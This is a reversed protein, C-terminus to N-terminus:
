QKSTKNKEFSALRQRADESYESDGSVRLAEKFHLAAEDPRHKRDMILGMRFYAEGLRYDNKVAAKYSSLAKDYEKQIEYATGLNYHGTALKPDLSVATQWNKIAGPLDKEARLAAGIGNYTIADKPNVALAKRFESLAQAYNHQQNYILGMNSHAEALANNVELAEKYAAIAEDLKGSLHLQVAKNYRKVADLRSGEPKAATTETRSASGEPPAGASSNLASQTAITSPAVPAAAAPPAAPASEPVAATEAVPAASAESAPMAPRLAALEDAPASAVPPTGAPTSAETTSAAGASWDWGGAPPAAAPAAPASPAASATSAETAVSPAASVSIPQDSFGVVVLGEELKVVRPKVKVDEPLDVVVRATPKTSNELNSYRVSKVFPMSQRVTGSLEEPALVASKDLSADAFDIVVRHNPGPLDLVQPVTPFGGGGFEIVLQQSGDASIKKIPLTVGDAAIASQALLLAALGSLTATVPKPSKRIRSM